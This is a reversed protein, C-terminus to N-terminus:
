DWFDEWGEPVHRKNWRPKWNENDILVHYIGPLPKLSNSVYKNLKASLKSTKVDVKLLLGDKMFILDAKGVCSVNRFVDAGRLLADRCVALEM